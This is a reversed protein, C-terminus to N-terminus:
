HFDENEIEEFLVHLFGEGKHHLSVTNISFALPANVGCCCILNNKILDERRVLFVGQDTYETETPSFLLDCKQPLYTYFKADLTTDSFWICMYIRSYCRINITM